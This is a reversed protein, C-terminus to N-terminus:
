FARGVTLKALFEFSGLHDSDTLPLGGGAVARASWRDRFALQYGAQAYVGLGDAAVRLANHVGRFAGAEAVLGSLALPRQGWQLGLYGGFGLGPVYGASTGVGWHRPRVELEAGLGYAWGLRLAVSPRAADAAAPTSRSLWLGGVLGLLTTLARLRRSAGKDRARGCPALM